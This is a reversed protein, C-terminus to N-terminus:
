PSLPYRSSKGWPYLPRSTFSVMWRLRIGLNLIRSDRYIEMEGYTKMVHHKILGLSLQINRGAKRDLRTVTSSIKDTSQCFFVSLIRWGAKQRQYTSILIIGNARTTIIFPYTLGKIQNKEYGLFPYIGNNQGTKDWQLKMINQHWIGSHLM